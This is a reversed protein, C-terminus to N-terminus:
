RGKFHTLLATVQFPQLINWTMKKKLTEASLNNLNKGTKMAMILVHQNDIYM